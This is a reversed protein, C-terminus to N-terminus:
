ERFVHKQGIVDRNALAMVGEFIIPNQYFHKELYEAKPPEIKRSKSNIVNIWGQHAFQYFSIKTAAMKSKQRGDQIKKKGLIKKQFEIRHLVNTGLKM